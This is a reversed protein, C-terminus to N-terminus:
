AAKRAALPPGLLEMGHKRFLRRLTVPDPTSGPPVAADLEKFFIDLGGPVVTILSRGPTTSLNQFTHRTGRAAFVTAGPGAHVHRGDIEFLFEGELIYWWEDQEYHIHLPPGGLSPTISEMVAFANGTDHSSIKIRVEDGVIHLGKKIRDDGPQLVFSLKPSITQIKPYSNMLPVAERRDAKVVSQLISFLQLPNRCEISYYHDLYSM